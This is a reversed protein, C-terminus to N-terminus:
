RKKAEITNYCIAAVWANQGVWTHRTSDLPRAARHHLEEQM